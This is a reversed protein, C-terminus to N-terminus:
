ASLVATATREAVAALATAKVIDHCRMPWSM